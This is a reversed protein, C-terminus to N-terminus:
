SQRKIIYGCKEMYGNMTNVIDGDSYYWQLHDYGSLPFLTKDFVEGPPLCLFELEYPIITYDNSVEIKKGELADVTMKLLDIGTSHKIVNWMHCGDLRPTVEILKPHRNEVIIQFYVPGKKIELAGITDAVLLKIRNYLDEDCIISSDLIHKKIIGGPYQEWSMRKSPFCFVIKGKDVFANVSIEEGFVYEEIIIKKERSFSITKDYNDIFEQYSRVLCVGRQGQSDSPKMIFPYDLLVIDKVSQIMQFKLNWPYKEGLTERLQIKNNCIVSTKSSCFVPLALKESVKLATPMAIDSGASYVYDVKKEKAYELVSETDVINIQKFDDVYKEGADGLRNSCAYVKYGRYKCEKILDAQAVGTGLVLINRM